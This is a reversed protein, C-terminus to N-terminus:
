WRLFDHNGTLLYKNSRRRLGKKKVVRAYRTVEIWGKRELGEIGKQITKSHRIRSRQKLLDFPATFSDRNGKYFTKLTNYIHAELYNLMKWADGSVTEFEVAGFPKQGIKKRDRKASYGKKQFGM